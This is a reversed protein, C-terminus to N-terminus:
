ASRGLLAIDYPITAAVSDITLIDATGGTTQLGAGDLPSFWTFVGSPPVIIIDGTAGFLGSFAPNSGAGVKLISALTTSRNVIWIGNVEIFNLAAGGLEATLGGRLDLADTTAVLSRSDSWALDFKWDTTGTAYEGNGGNLSAPPYVLRHPMVSTGLDKLASELMQLAFNFRTAVAM